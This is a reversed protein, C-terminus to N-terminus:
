MGSSIIEILEGIIYEDKCVSPLRSLLDGRSTAKEIATQLVTKIAIEIQYRGLRKFCEDKWLNEAIEGSTEVTFTLEETPAIGEVKVFTTSVSADYTFEAAKGGVTVATPKQAGVLELTYSRKAPLISADGDVASVTFTATEGWTFTMPTVAKRTDVLQEDDEYMNFSGDAGAFVRLRLSTPIPAGNVCGDDALPVIGGAKTLVPYSELTRYLTMIKQGRYHRGTFFDFWDGEPIWANVKGTQSRLDMPSTIPCVMLETGFYYQNIFATDNILEMPNEYYMPMCLPLGEAHNRYNM